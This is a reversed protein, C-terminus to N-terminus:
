QDINMFGFIDVLYDVASPGNRIIFKGDSTHGPNDFGFTTIFFNSWADVTHGGFHLNLAQSAPVFPEDFPRASLWGKGKWHRATLNGVIGYYNTSDFTSGPFLFPGIVVEANAALHGSTLHQPNGVWAITAGSGAARVRTAGLASAGAAGIAAAGALKLLDRRTSKSGDLAKDVTV